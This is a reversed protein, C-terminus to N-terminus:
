LDKMSDDQLAEVRNRYALSPQLLVIIAIVDTKSYFISKSVLTKTLVYMRDVESMSMRLRLWAVDIRRIEARDKKLICYQNDRCTLKM